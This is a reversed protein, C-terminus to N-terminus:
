SIQEELIDIVESTNKAEKILMLIEQNSFISMLKKLVEIQQKPHHIALMFVLEVPVDRVGNGMEKFLVPKKLNAIAIKSELVHKSDTHPLAVMVGPTPLGTPYIKEREIVAEEFSDKVFGKEILKKSMQKLLTTSDDAVLNLFILDNSFLTTAESFGMNLVEETMKKTTCRYCLAIKTGIIHM